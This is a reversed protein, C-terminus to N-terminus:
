EPPAAQPGQAWAGGSHFFVSFCGIGFGIEFIYWMIAYRNIAYSMAIQNDIIQYAIRSTRAIIHYAIIPICNNRYLVTFTRLLQFIGDDLFIGDDAACRRGALAHVDVCAGGDPLLLRRRQWSLCM